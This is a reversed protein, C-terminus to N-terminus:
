AVMWWCGGVVGILVLTTLIGAGARDKQTITNINGNPNNEDTGQTGAAPNGISTGGTGKTVPVTANTILNAQIVSLAGMQQGVGTTGDWKAGQTWKMGCLTKSDGGSCQAAAATASTRLEPMVLDYVFPALKTSAAMWRSLYAKFSFNDTDCTNPGECAVEMMVGATPTTPTVTSFFISTSNLIGRIRTEWIPAGNTQSPNNTQSPFPNL